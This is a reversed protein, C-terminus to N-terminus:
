AEGGIEEYRIDGAHTENIVMQWVADASQKDALWLDTSTSGNNIDEAESLEAATCNYGDIGELYQDVLDPNWFKFKKM